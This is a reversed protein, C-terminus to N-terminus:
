IIFNRSCFKLKEIEIEKYKYLPGKFAQGKWSNKDNWSCKRPFFKSKFIFKNIGRPSANPTM